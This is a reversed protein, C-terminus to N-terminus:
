LIKGDATLLRDVEEMAAVLRERRVQSLPELMSWALTEARQDLIAREAKGQDTLRATRARKDSECVTVTVFGANRLSRLLRSLYGSDLELRTRLTRVDCGDAGIEWLVRSETLPRGRELYSGSLAGARQTITRDFRRAHEIMLERDM